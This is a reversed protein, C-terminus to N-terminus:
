DKLTGGEIYTNGAMKYKFAGYPQKVETVEWDDKTLEDLRKVRNIITAIYYYGCDSCVIQEEGTKYNFDVRAEMKCNPCEIYETISGM